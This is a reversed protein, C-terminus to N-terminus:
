GVIVQLEFYIFLAMVISIVMKKEKKENKKLHYVLVLIDNIINGCLYLIDFSAIRAM